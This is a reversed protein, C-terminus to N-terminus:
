LFKYREESELHHLWQRGAHLNQEVTRLNEENVRVYERALQLQTFRSQGPLNVQFLKQYCM